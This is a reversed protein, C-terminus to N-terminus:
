CSCKRIKILAILIRIRFKLKEENMKADIRKLIKRSEALPTEGGEPSAVLCCFYLQEPYKDSYSLDNHLLLINKSPYETSTYVNGGLAVRPTAGGAYNLLQKGSFAGVFSGFDEATNVFFGRFLLAGYRLLKKQFFGRETRCITILSAPNTKRM